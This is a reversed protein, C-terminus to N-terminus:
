RSQRRGTVIILLGNLVNARITALRRPNGVTTTTTTAKTAKTPTILTNRRFECGTNAPM